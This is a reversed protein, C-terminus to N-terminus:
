RGAAILRRLPPGLWRDLTSAYTATLHSGDFYTVVGGIVASCTETPCIYDTLDLFEIGPSGIRDVASSSQDAPLWTDKPGNCATVDDPHQALCDPILVSPAPTDRLVLVRLGAEDWGRLVAEMGDSYAAGSDEYSQGAAGVSIRNTYLVAAPKSRAVARVTRGVWAECADTNALTPFHQRVDAAACQSALYTTVRWHNRKALRELPPLWQGAHSNGVLAVEVDSERDGFTCRVLRFAPLHSFCDRGGTVGHYAKPRDNAADGPAPVIDDYPVPKCRAPNVLAAAGFCPGRDAVARALEAKAEGQRHNVESQQLGALAIVVVMGVAGLLFPKRLPIGWQPTRFRDEVYQKTLWALVLTLALVAVRDRNDIDHGRLQPILVILPWHWLYVSYSVDGLWQMPRVALLPGPSVWSMPSHAGIVLATGLVPLLAQWGPFPTRGTYTWATWAIAAFGVWALVIRLAPPLLAALGRRQRVAVVVALLGGVGLEWMRTPTVFYAAAPNHSTEWMSYGLSTAVLVGLGGLIALDRNWRMRGALLVMGLILIPWVFYFQEEVSLSWFHQVPSPANEAALYDVSDRALLWNVVYLTAGRAQRATNGWQTEPAVLRSLVLTTTLVLLSAPLLRRIRRGWFKALDRGGTPPKQMLHLTILFGSIVFFVDVGAFGGSLSSPFLHYIVVLSVAVARLGQIDTRLVAGHDTRSGGRGPKATGKPTGPPDM